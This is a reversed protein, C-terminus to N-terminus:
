AGHEVPDVPLGDGAPEGPLRIMAGSALLVPDATAGKSLLALYDRRMRYGWFDNIHGAVGQEPPQRPQSRFFDAIQGAMRILKDGREDDDKSM